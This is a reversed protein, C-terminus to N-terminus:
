ASDRHFLQSHGFRCVRPHVRRKKRRRYPPTRRLDASGIKLGANLYPGAGTDGPENADPGLDVVGFDNKEAWAALAVSDRQWPSFRLRRFGIPFSGTRTTLM